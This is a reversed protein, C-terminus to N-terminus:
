KQFNRKNQKKKHYYKTGQPAIIKKIKKKRIKYIENFFKNKINKEEDNLIESIEYFKLGSKRLEFIEVIEPKM